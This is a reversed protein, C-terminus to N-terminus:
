RERRCLRQRQQLSAVKMRKASASCCVVVRSKRPPLTVFFLALDLTVKRSSEAEETELEPEPEPEPEGATDHLGSGPVLDPVSSRQREEAVLHKNLVELTDKSQVCVM